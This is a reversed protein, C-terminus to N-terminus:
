NQNSIFRDSLKKDADFAISSPDREQNFYEDRYGVLTGLMEMDITKHTYIMNFISPYKSELRHFKRSCLNRSADPNRSLYDCMRQANTMIETKNLHDLKQREEHERELKEAHKQVAKENFGEM